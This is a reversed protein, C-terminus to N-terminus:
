STEGEIGAVFATSTLTFGFIQRANHLTAQMCFDPNTTASADEFLLTDYGLFSADALTHLVCQDANVGGFFLTDVKLNRLISDLPTDWFGSMRYKDVFIDSPEPELPDVIAAGWSDKELVLAKRPGVADGLGGGSGAGDYVHRLAPSINALDQRNGWNVWIVPMAVLRAASLVQQLPAIASGAGTVDVGIGALWGDAHCFDNQMDVIILASRALDIRVPKPNAEIEVPRPPTLDRVLDAADEGVKWRNRPNPGLPTLGEFRSM